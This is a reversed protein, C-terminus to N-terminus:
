MNKEGKELEVLRWALWSLKKQWKQEEWQAKRKQKEIWAQNLIIKGDKVIAKGSNLKALMEKQQKRQVLEQWYKNTM